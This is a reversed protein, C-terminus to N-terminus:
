ELSETWYIQFLVLVVISEDRFFYPALIKQKSQDYQSVEETKLSSIEEADSEKMNHLAICSFRELLQLERIFGFDVKMRRLQLEWFGRLGSLAENLPPYVDHVEADIRLYELTPAWERLSECVADTTATFTSGVRAGLLSVTFTTVSSGALPAYSSLIASVCRITRGTMAIERLDPCYGSAQLAAFKM